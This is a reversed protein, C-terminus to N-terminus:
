KLWEYAIRPSGDEMYVIGCRTFNMKDLLHQMPYNDAHTDIRLHTIQGRCFELCRSLTGPVTGNSAVRHIVGYPSPALWAGDEIYGYTPDEWIVFMFVGCVAGSQVDVYLRGLRIDEELMEVAPYTTGWQTPNGNQAMFTRAHAYVSLIEPLDATTALRIM